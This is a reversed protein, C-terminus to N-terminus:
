RPTSSTKPVPDKLEFTLPLTQDGRRVTFHFVGPRHILPYVNAITLPRKGLEDLKLLVDGPQFGAKDSASGPLIAHVTLTQYRDGSAVLNMGATVYNFADAFHANKQLYLKAQPLDLIVTFRRWVDNGIGGDISTEVGQAAQDLDVLPNRVVFRGLQLAPCIAESLLMVGGVGSAGSQAFPKFELEPHTDQFLRSLELAGNNGTDLLFQGAASGETTKVTAEIMPGHESMSLPLSEFDGVPPHFADPQILEITQRVYDIRIVFNKLLDMGLIGVVPRGYAADFATNPLIAWRANRFTVGPLSFTIGETISGTSVNEGLGAASFSTGGRIRMKKAFAASLMPENAGTDFLLFAQKKDPTSIPILIGDLYFECPIRSSTGNAFSSSLDASQFDGSLTEAGALAGSGMAWAVIIVSLGQHIQCAIRPM